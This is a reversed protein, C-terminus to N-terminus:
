SEEDSSLRIHHTIGPEKMKDPNNRAFEAFESMRERIATKHHEDSVMSLYERLIHFSHHDRARFIIIPEDLPIAEGSVRNVFQGLSTDFRFKRDQGGVVSNQPDNGDLVTKLTSLEEVYNPGTYPGNHIQNITWVSQFKPDDNIEELKDVLARSARVINDSV